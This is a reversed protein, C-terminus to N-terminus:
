RHKCEDVSVGAYTKSESFSYPTGDSSRGAASIRLIWTGPLCLHRVTLTVGGPGPREDTQKTDEVESEGGLVYVLQLTFLHTEPPPTCTATARGVMVHTDITLSEGTMGCDTGYTNPGCAATTLLPLVLAASLAAARVRMRRRRM